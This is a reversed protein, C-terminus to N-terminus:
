ERKLNNYFATHGETRRNFSELSSLQLLMAVRPCLSLAHAVVEIGDGRRLLMEPNLDFVKRPAAHANM